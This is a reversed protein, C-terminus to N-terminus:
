YEVDRNEPDITEVEDDNIYFKGAPDNKEDDCVWDCYRDTLECWWKLTTWL